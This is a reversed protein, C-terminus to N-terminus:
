KHGKGHGKGRHGKRKKDRVLVTVWVSDKREKIQTDDYLNGTLHLAVMDGDNLTKGEALLSDEIAAALKQTDFKLTLDLEGDGEEANCHSADEIADRLPEVGQLRVTSPDIQTVDYTEDGIIVVPTVGRSKDNIRRAKLPIQAGLCNPPKIEVEVEIDAPGTDPVGGSRFADIFFAGDLHYLQGTGSIEIADIGQTDRIGIFTMAGTTDFPIPESAVNGRFVTVMIAGYPSRGNFGVRTVPAPDGTVPDVFNVTIASPATDWFECDNYNSATDYDSNGEEDVMYYSTLSGEGYLGGSFSVGFGEKYQNEIVPNEPNYYCDSGEFMIPEDGAFVTMDDVVEPEVLEVASAQAALGFVFVTAFLIVWLKKM